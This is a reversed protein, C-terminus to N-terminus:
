IDVASYFYEFYPRVEKRKTAPSSKRLGNEGGTKQSYIIILKISFLNGVDIM